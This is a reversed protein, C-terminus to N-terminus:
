SPSTRTGPREPSSRPPGAPAPVPPSSRAPAATPSSRGCGRPRISSTSRCTRRVARLVAFIAVVHDATRPLMLAVLDGTGVGTAVLHRALATVRDDFQRATFTEAGCTLAPAEPSAAARESLLTDISGEPAGPLPIVTPAATLATPEIEDYRRGTDAVTIPQGGHLGAIRTLM